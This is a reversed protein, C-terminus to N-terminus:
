IRRGFNKALTLIFGIAKQVDPDRLNKMADVLSMPEYVVSEEFADLFKKVVRLTREDVSIVLNFLMEMKSAIEKIEETSLPIRFESLKVVEDLIGKKELILLKELADIIEGHNEAIKEFIEYIAEAVKVVKESTM